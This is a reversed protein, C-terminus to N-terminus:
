KKEKKCNFLAQFVREMAYIRTKEPKKRYHFFLKIKM